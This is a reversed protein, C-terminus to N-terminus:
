NWVIDDTTQIPGSKGGGTTDVPTIKGTVSSVEAANVVAAGGLVAVGVGIVCAVRAVWRGLKNERM